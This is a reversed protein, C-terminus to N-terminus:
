FTHKKVLCLTYHTRDGEKTDKKKNKESESINLLVDDHMTIIHCYKFVITSVASQSLTLTSTRGILSLMKSTIYGSTWEIIIKKQRTNARTVKTQLQSGHFRYSIWTMPSMNVIKLVCSQMCYVKKPWKKRQPLM